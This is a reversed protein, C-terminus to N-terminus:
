EEEKWRRIIANRANQTDVCAISKQQDQELILPCLVDEIWIWRLVSEGNIYLEAITRAEPVDQWLTREEVASNPFQEWYSLTLKLTPDNQLIAIDEASIPEDPLDILEQVAHIDQFNVTSLRNTKENWKELVVTCNSGLYLLATPFHGRPSFLILIRTSTKMCEVIAFRESSIRIQEDKSTLWGNQMLSFATREIEERSLDQPNPLPFCLLEKGNFFSMLLLLESDTLYYATEFPDM